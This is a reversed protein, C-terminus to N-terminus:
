MAAQFLKTIEKLDMVLDLQLTKDKIAKVVIQQRSARDFDSTSHRSRSYKLAEEGDMHYNGPEISYSEYGGKGNPYLGDYLAKTVTIDLGGLIDVVQKFGELDVKAYYDMELGSVTEVMRNLQDVGYYTYYENIRRGNIYLDRPISVLSIKKKEENISAIMITDTHAGNTGLLLVDVTTDNAAVAGTATKALAPSLVDAQLQKGLESMMAAIAPDAVGTSLMNQIESFDDEISQLVTEQSMVQESLLFKEQKFAGLEDILSIIQGESQDLKKNVNHLSVSFGLLLAGISMFVATTVARSRLSARLASAPVFVESSEEGIHLVTHEEYNHQM